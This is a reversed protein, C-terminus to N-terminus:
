AAVTMFHATIPPVNTLVHALAPLIHPLAIRGGRAPFGAVDPLITTVDTGVPALAAGIPAVNPPVTPIQPLIAPIGRLAVRRVLIRLVVASSTAFRYPRLM